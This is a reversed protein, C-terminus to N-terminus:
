FANGRFACGLPQHKQLRVRAPDLVPQTVRAPDLVPQTRLLIDFAELPGVNVEIVRASGVNDDDCTIPARPHGFRIAPTVV